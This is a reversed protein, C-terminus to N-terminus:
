FGNKIEVIIRKGIEKRSVDYLKKNDFLLADDLILSKYLYIKGNKKVIKKIPNVFEPLIKVSRCTLVDFFNAYAEPVSEIRSHITECNKLGTQGCMKDIAALKKQKSDLMFIKSEPYIIALPIGPLGGGTGFDCITKKNLDAGTELILLSDLFHITWLDDINTQRSFLNIQSNIEVLTSFYIDFKAIIDNLKEGNFKSKLFDIFFERNNV